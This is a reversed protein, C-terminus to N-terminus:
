CPGNDKTILQVRNLLSANETGRHRNDDTAFAAGGLARVYRALGAPIRAQAADAHRTQLLARMEPPTANGMPLYIKGSRRCFKGIRGEGKM